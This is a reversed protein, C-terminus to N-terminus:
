RPPCRRAGTTTPGAFLRFRSSTLAAIHACSMTDTALTITGKRWPAVDGLEQLKDAAMALSEAAAKLMERSVNELHEDTLNIANM